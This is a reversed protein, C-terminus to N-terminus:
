QGEKGKSKMAKNTMWYIVYWWIYICAIGVIAGTVFCIILSWWPVM